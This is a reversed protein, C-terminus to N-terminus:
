FLHMETDWVSRELLHQFRYPAQFGDAESMQWSIKTAVNGIVAEIYAHTFARADSRTFFRRMFDQTDLQAPLQEGM